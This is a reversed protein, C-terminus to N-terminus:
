LIGRYTLIHWTVTLFAAAVQSGIDTVRITVELVRSFIPEIPVQPLTVHPM